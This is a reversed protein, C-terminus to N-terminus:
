FSVVSSGAYKLLQVHRCCSLTSESYAWTWSPPWVALQDLMQCMRLSSKLSMEYFIHPGNPSSDSFLMLSLCPQRLCGLDAFCFFGQDSLLPAPGAILPYLAASSHPWGWSAYALQNTPTMQLCNGPNGIYWIWGSPFIPGNFFHCQLWRRDNASITRTGWCDYEHCVWVTVSFTCGNVPDWDKDGSAPSPSLLSSSTM